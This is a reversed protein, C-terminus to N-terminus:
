AEPVGRDHEARADRLIRAADDVTVPGPLAAWALAVDAAKVTAELKGQDRLAQDRRADGIIKAVADALFGLFANLLFRM